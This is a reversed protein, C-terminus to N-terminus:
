GRRGRRRLVEVAGVTVAVGVALGILLVELESPGAAPASNGKVSPPPSSTNTSGSVTVTFNQTNSTGLSDVVHLTVPYTGPVTYAHTANAAGGGVGDGYEWLLSYPPLGGGVSANFTIPM